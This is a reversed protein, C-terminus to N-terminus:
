CKKNVIIAVVFVIIVVQSSVIVKALEDCLVKLM